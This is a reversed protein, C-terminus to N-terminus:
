AGLISEWMEEFEESMMEKVQERESKDMKYYDMMEELTMCKVNIILRTKTKTKYETNGNKDTTTVTVKYKEKHNEVEVVKLFIKELKEYNEQNMNTIDIKNERNTTVVAYISLIEKWEVNKNEIRISDYNTKEKLKEIKSDIEDELKSIASKVSMNEETKPTENSFLFGFASGFMGGIMVVIIVISIVLSGGSVLITIMSSAVAILKKSIEKIASVTKKAKNVHKKNSEANLIKNIAYKKNLQQVQNIRKNNSSKELRYNKAKLERSNASNEKSKVKNQAKEILEKTKEKVTYNAGYWVKEGADFVKDTAYNIEQNESEEANKNVRKQKLLKEKINQTYIHNKDLKRINRNTSKIRIDKAM